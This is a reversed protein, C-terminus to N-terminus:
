IGLGPEASEVRYLSYSAGALARLVADEDSGDPYPANAFYEQAANVGGRYVDHICHDMLVAMEDESGLVLSDGQRRGVSEGGEDLVDKDLRQVLTHSVQMSVQRLHQYRALLRAKDHM